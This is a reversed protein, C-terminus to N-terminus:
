PAPDKLGEAATESIRGLLWRFNSASVQDITIGAEQLVLRVQFLDPEPFIDVPYANPWDRLKTLAERMRESQEVMKRTTLVLSDILHTKPIVRKLERKWASAYMTYESQWKNSDKQVDELHREVKEKENVQKQLEKIECLACSQIDPYITFRRFHGCPNTDTFNHSLRDSERTLRELEVNLEKWATVSAGYMVQMMGLGLEKNRDDRLHKIEEEMDAIRHQLGNYTSNIKHISQPSLMQWETDTMMHNQLDGRSAPLEITDSM